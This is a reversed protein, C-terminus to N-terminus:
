IEDLDVVMGCECVGKGNSSVFNHKHQSRPARLVMRRRKERISKELRRTKNAMRREARDARVKELEDGHKSASFESIQGELYLQMVGWGKSHPNPRTICPFQRMEEETLLYKKMCNTKTELKVNNPRCKGCVLIGFTQQLEKVVPAAGCHSCRETIPLMIDEDYSPTEEKGDTETPFFGGEM